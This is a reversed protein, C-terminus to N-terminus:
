ATRKWAFVVIWPMLNTASSTDGGVKIGQSELENQGGVAGGADVRTRQNSTYTVTSDQVQADIYNSNPVRFSNLNAQLTGNSHSHTEQGGTNGRTAFTGSDAKSVIVRGQGFREWTGYGLLTAPNTSVDANYYLSGVALQQAVIAANAAQLGTVLTNISTTMEDLRAKVTAYAGQPTSGLIALINDDGTTVSAAIAGFLEKITAEPEAPNTGLVTEIAVIAEQLEITDQAYVTDKRDPNVVVGPYDELERFSDITGPFSSM